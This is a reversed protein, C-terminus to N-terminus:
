YGKRAVPLFVRYCGVPWPASFESTNGQGDTATVTVNPGRITGDWGFAGSVDDAWTTGEYLRGEDGDDSFVEIQCGTCAMGAVHGCGAGGISPTAIM